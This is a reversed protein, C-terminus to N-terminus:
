AREARSSFAKTKDFRENPIQRHFFVNWSIRSTARRGFPNMNRRAPWVPNEQRHARVFPITPQSLSRHLPRQVTYPFVRRRSPQHTVIKQHWVMDMQKARRAIEFERDFAPHSKPLIAKRLLTPYRTCKLRPSKMMPRAIPFTIRLLPKIHPLIRHPKPQHLSRLIPRIKPPNMLNMPSTTASPSRATPSNWVFSCSM